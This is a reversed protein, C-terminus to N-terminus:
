VNLVKDKLEQYLQEITKGCELVELLAVRNRAERVKKAVRYATMRSGSFEEIVNELESLGGRAFSYAGYDKLMNDAWYRGGTKYYHSVVTRIESSVLNRVESTELSFLHYEMAKLYMERVSGLNDFLNGVTKIKLADNVSKSRLLRYEFRITNEPLGQIEFGRNHIEALKDYVCLQRQTNEWLFTSGYDRRNQRKARLLQFVPIYDRFSEDAYVNSFADLRSIKLDSATVGIGYDKLKRELEKSFGKADASSLPYFNDGTVFKPVSLQVWLWTDKTLNNPKVTVNLRDTNLFAKAGSVWQGGSRQFLKQNNQEGTKYNVDALRIEIEADDSISFDDTYFKVTDLM